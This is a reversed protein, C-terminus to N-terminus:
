ECGDRGPCPENVDTVGLILDIHGVAWRTGVRACCPGTEDMVEVVPCMFAVPLCCFDM